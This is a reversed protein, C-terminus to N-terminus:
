AGTRLFTDVAYAAGVSLLAVIVALVGYTLQKKAVKIREENSGGAIFNYAAFLFFLVAVVFFTEYVWQVANKLINGITGPDSVPSATSGNNLPGILDDAASVRTAWLIPAALVASWLPFVFALGRKKNKMSNDTM